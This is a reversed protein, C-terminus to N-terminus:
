AAFTQVDWYVLFSKSFLLNAAAFMTNLETQQVSSDAIGGSSQCDAIWRGCVSSLQKLDTEFVPNEPYRFRIQTLNDVSRIVHRCLGSDVLSSMNLQQVYVNLLSQFTCM